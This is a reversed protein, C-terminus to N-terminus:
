LVCSNTPAPLDFCGRDSEPTAGESACPGSQFSLANTAIAVARLLSLSLSEKESTMHFSTREHEANMKELLVSCFLPSFFTQM